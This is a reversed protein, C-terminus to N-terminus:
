LGLTWPPAGSNGAPRRGSWTNRLSVESASGFVGTIISAPVTRWQERRFMRVSLVLWGVLLFCVSNSNRCVCMGM